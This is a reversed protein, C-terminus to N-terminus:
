DNKMTFAVIKFTRDKVQYVMLSNLAIHLNHLGSLSVSVDVNIFENFSIVHKTDHPHQVGSEGEIHMDIM